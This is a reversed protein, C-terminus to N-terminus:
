RGRLRRAEGSRELTRRVENLSSGQALQRRYTRLGDSDIDRRLIERYLDNLRDRSEQSDAIDQRVRSLSWDDNAIRDLYTDFGAEDLDRGLVEEYIDDLARRIQAKQSNSLIRNGRSDFRERDGFRGNSGNSGNNDRRDINRGGQGLGAQRIEDRSATRGCYVRRTDEDVICIRQASQAQASTALLPGPAIAALLVLPLLKSQM